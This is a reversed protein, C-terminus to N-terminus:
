TNGNKLFQIKALKKYHAFNLNLRDLAILNNLPFLKNATTNLGIKTNFTRYIQFNRQRSTCILQEMITVHEFSLQNDHENLLKHLKLSMQYLM